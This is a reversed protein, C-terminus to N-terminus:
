TLECGKEEVKERELNVKIEQTNGSYISVLENDSFKSKFDQEQIDTNIDAISKEQTVQIYKNIYVNFSDFVEKYKDTANKLIDDLSIQSDKNNENYKKIKNYHESLHHKRSETLEIGCYTQLLVSFADAEMEVQALPKYPQTNLENHMLAHGLEHTLCSLKQTDQLKDSIVIRNEAPSYFGKLAISKVDEEVVPCGLSTSFDILADYLLKHQESTHGVDYVKPYDAPPCDTQSIDFVSGLKFSMVKRSEYEGSLIKKQVKEKINLPVSSIKKWNTESSNERYLTIPAPVLVCLGTEGQKVNYGLKKFDPYSAVFSIHPNQAYLLMTNRVSYRYFKSNFALLEAISDPNLTFNEAVSKVLLEARSEKEEKEKLWKEKDFAKNWAM